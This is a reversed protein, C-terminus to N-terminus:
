SMVEFVLLGPYATITRSGVVADTYPGSESMYTVDCNGVLTGKNITIATPNTPKEESYNGRIRLNTVPIGNIRLGM